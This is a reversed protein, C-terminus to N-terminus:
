TSCWLLLLLAVAFTTHLSVMDTIRSRHGSFNRVIRRTDLDIIKVKFTDLAVALM